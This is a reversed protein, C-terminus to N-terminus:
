EHQIDEDKMIQLLLGRTLLLISEEFQDSGIEAPYLCAFFIARFAGSFAETNMHSTDLQLGSLMAQLMDNDEALHATVVEPPLKRILLAMEEPVMLTKLCSNIARLIGDVIIRSLIDVNLYDAAAMCRQMMEGEIQEHYVQIVEFLLEEKSRYFLYFTGKPIGVTNVLDDVTTKRVGKKQLSRNAAEHLKARIQQKEKESYTKPM